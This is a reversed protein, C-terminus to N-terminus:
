YGSPARLSSVTDPPAPRLALRPLMVSTDPRRRKAKRSGFGALAAIVRLVAWPPVVLLAILRGWEPPADPNTLLVSVTNGGSLVFLTAFILVFWAIALRDVWILRM